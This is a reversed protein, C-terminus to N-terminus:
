LTSYTNVRSQKTYIRWSCRRTGCSMFQKTAKTVNRRHHESVIRCRLRCEAVCLNNRRHTDSKHQKQRSKRHETNVYSLTCQYKLKQSIDSYDILWKQYVAGTVTCGTLSIKSHVCELVNKFINCRAVDDSTNFIDVKVIM